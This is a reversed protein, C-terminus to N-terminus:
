TADLYFRSATTYSFSLSGKVKPKNIGLSQTDFHGTGLSM